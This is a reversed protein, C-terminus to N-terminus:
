RAQQLDMMADVEPKVFYKKQGTRAFLEKHLFYSDFLDKLPQPTTEDNIWRPVMVEGIPVLFEQHWLQATIHEKGFSVVAFTGTYTSFANLVVDKQLKSAHDFLMKLNDNNLFKSFFTQQEAKNNRLNFTQM